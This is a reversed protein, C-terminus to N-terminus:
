ETVAKTVAQEGLLADLRKKLTIRNIGLLEAARLQNGQTQALAAKILERDVEDHLQAHAAGPHDSLARQVMSILDAGDHSAESPAIALHDPSIIGGTALVAAEELCHKLQRVNGPWDHQTLQQLAEDTIALERSLRQGSRHLFHRVLDPIDSKRAALPPVPIRVINLRYALDARFSGDEVMADLDRNTAAVVRVQVAIEEQGGLRRLHQDDLVRLLKAQTPLPLEGVEDLFLTGGDAAEVHGVKRQKADTFAGAEHGFLESEVLHDPLASCNLAVFPGDSQAGYQHLARAFLEKGAGSPGTILVGMDAAHAAAALRKYSEQMVPSSGVLMSESAGGHSTAALVAEGSAQRLLSILREEDIPKAIYDFAGAKVAAMATEMTGHATMVVVPLHPYEQKITALLDLGSMGPMRIDTLVVAPSERQLIKLARQANAAVRVQYGADQLCQELAWCVAADDDVLLVLAQDSM